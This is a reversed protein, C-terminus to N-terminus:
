KPGSKASEQTIADRNATAGSIRNWEVKVDLGQARGHKEILKQDQLVGLILYGFGFQQAIRIRGEANAATSGLALAASLCLAAFRHAARM